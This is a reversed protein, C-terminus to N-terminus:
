VPSRAGPRQAWRRDDGVRWLFGATAFAVLGCVLALYWAAGDWVPDYGEGTALATASAVLPPGLWVAVGGALLAVTRGDGPQERRVRGLLHALLAAFTAVAAVLCLVYLALRLGTLDDFRLEEPYGTGEGVGPPLDEGTARDIIQWRAPLVVENVSLAATALALLAPVRAGLRRCGEAVLLWGAPDAVLDLATARFDLAVIAVGIGVLVLPRM